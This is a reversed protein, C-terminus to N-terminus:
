ARGGAIERLPPHAGAALVHVTDGEPRMVTGFRESAAQLRAIEAAEQEATRLVVETDPNQRVLSYGADVIGSKEVGLRAIM